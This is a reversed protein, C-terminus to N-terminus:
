RLRQARAGGDKVVNGLAALGEVKRGLALLIFPRHEEAYSAGLPNDKGPELLRLADGKGSGVAVWARLIPAAFAFIRDESIRDIQQGAAAWNRTEIAESLLLMRMDPSLANAKVLGRAAQLALPRDGAVMAQGWAGSAVSEDGPFLALMAAYGKASESASTAGRAQAYASLMALDDRAAYAAGPLAVLAAAM